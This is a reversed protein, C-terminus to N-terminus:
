SDDDSAPKLVAKEVRRLRRAMDDLQGFRVANKRWKAADDMPVGGGAYVGPKKISHTVMTRGLVVVDDAITIHGAVGAQGGIMCRAGIQASGSIGVQGAIATHEGIAVNHGVQIQNDLKVGNAIVTDEIAGRDITTNAGIEVDNGIRVGGLQPVKTWAGTSEKAIGFGDAGVVSGSHLLCRQGIRVGSYLTVGAMLRTDDGLMTGPGLVCLAGICVREGLVVADGLVAGPAIECSEPIDCDAGVSASDHVGPVLPPEPQLLAAVHAYVRYPEPTILAATPCDDVASEELIVASAQTEALMKRYSANALFAICGEGASQLTGVQDVETDPDGRLECGFQVALKGLSISM